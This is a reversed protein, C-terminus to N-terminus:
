KFDPTFPKRDGVSTARQLGPALAEVHAIREQRAEDRAVALVADVHENVVGRVFASLKRSGAAERWRVLDSTAVRLKFIDQKTGVGTM